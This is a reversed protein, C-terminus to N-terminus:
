QKVLVIVQGHSYDLSLNTRSVGIDTSINIIIIRQKESEENGDNVLPSWLSHVMNINHFQSQCTM